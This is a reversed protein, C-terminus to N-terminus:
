NPSTTHARLDNLAPKTGILNIIGYLLLTATLLAFTADLLTHHEIRITAAILATLALTLPIAIYTRPIQTRDQIKPTRAFPTKTRTAAQHLSKTVGALNVPILLLNLSWIRFIDGHQYGLHRLDRHQIWFYPAACVPLWLTDFLAGFPALLLLLVALNSIAPSLLYHTRLWFAARPHHRRTRLLKPFILLGGNAWRRRQVILAGFDPPTASWSLRDPVNHLRWGAAALDISSETDEIVTHDQVFRRIPWGREHDDTAIDRIARARLVANAGVWFTANWHTFGQHVIYQLDTSAGAARELVCPAEPVASYPTQIVGVRENAPLEMEAVLRAVYHPDLISDADLTVVYDADPVVLDADREDCRTLIPEGNLHRVNRYAGGLRELYANLNMAKNPEHSLNAWRKREFSTIEVDFLAHLRRAWGELGAASPATLAVIAEMRALEQDWQQLVRAHFHRDTHTERPEHDLLSELWRRAGALEYLLRERWVEIPEGSLGQRLALYLATTSERPTAVLANLQSVLRRAAMLLAADGMTPPHPPDDILLVVRRRPQDQLMASLLAQRVVGPEEKYSPVLVVVAPADDRNVAERLGPYRHARTTPLRRLYGFRCLQYVLSGVVLAMFALVFVVCELVVGVTGRSVASWTVGWVHCMVAVACGVTVVLVVIGVGEERSAHRATTAEVGREERADGHPSVWGVM